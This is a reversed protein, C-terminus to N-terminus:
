NNKLNKKRLSEGSLEIRHSSYVVRDLIADAITSDEIIEYWKSVPLQSTIITSHKGHRDDLIELLALRSQIDLPQLGFDDLIILNQQEIKRIEKIYSNDAKSMKLNGFLKGANFYLVKYGFLCARHGISSALYSKGVGTKGTIIVNEKNEIFSLDALRLFQNKDLNRQSHFDIDEISAQYRFHAAKLSRATKRNNRNDYEADVLQSIFEDATMEQYSRTEVAVQFAASMGHLKMLKMKELTANNNM